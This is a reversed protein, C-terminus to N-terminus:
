RVNRAGTLVGGGGGRFVDGHEQVTGSKMFVSLIYVGSFMTSVNVIAILLPCLINDIGAYKSLM